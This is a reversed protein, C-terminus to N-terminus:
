LRAVPEARRQFKVAQPVALPIGVSRPVLGVGEPLTEDVKVQATFRITELLLDIQDNNELQLAAATAPSMWVEPRALRSRLLPSPLLTM